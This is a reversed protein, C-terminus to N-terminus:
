ENQPNRLASSRAADIDYLHPSQHPGLRVHNQALQLLLHEFSALPDPHCCPSTDM